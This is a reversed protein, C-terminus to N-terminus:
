TDHRHRPRHASHWQRYGACCRLRGQAKCRPPGILRCIVILSRCSLISCPRGDQLGCALVIDVDRGQTIVGTQRRVAAAPHAHDLDFASVIRGGGAGRRYFVAHDHLGVRWFNLRQATFQQLHQQCVMWGATQKARFSAVAVFAHDRQALAGQGRAAPGAGLIVLAFQLGHDILHVQGLLTVRPAVAHQLYLLGIREKVAIVVQTNQASAADAGTIFQM